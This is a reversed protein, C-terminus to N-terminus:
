LKELLFDRLQKAAIFTLDVTRETLIHDGNPDIATHTLINGQQLWQEREYQTGQISRIVYYDILTEDEQILLNSNETINSKHNPLFTFRLTHKFNKEGFVSKMVAINLGIMAARAAPDKEDLEMVIALINSQDSQKKAKIDYYGLLGTDDGIPRRKLYHNLGNSSSIAKFTTNAEQNPTAFAKRMDDELSRKNFGESVHYQLMEDKKKDQKLHNYTSTITGVILGLPFIILIWWYKTVSGQKVEANHDDDIDIDRDLNVM